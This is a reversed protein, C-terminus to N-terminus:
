RAAARAMGILAAFWLMCASVLRQASSGDILGCASRWVAHLDIVAAWNRAGLCGVGLWLRHSM